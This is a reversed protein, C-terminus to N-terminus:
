DDDTETDDAEWDDSPMLVKEIVHTVGNSSMANAITIEVDNVYWKKNLYTIELTEWQLSTLVDGGELDNSTFKWPVVHYTLIDTLMDINKPELLTEVTGDPLADFASNTPAFVTFPGEWQLAEVLGAAQVAAVLTTHDTSNIANAVIDLNPTMEAWGVVVNAESTTEEESMDDDVDDTSASPTETTVSDTEPPTTTPEIKEQTGCSALLLSSVVLLSLIYKM